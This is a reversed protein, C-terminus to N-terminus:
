LNFTTKLKIEPLMQLQLKMNINKATLLHVNGLLHTERQKPLQIASGSKNGLATFQDTLHPFMQTYDRQTYSLLYNVKTARDTNKKNGKSQRKQILTLHNSIM